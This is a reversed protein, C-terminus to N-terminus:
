QATARRRRRVGIAMALLGVALLAWTAPEPATSTTGVYYAWLGLDQDPASNGNAILGPDDVDANYNWSTEYNYAYAWDLTDGSGYVGWILQRTSGIGIAGGMTTADSMWNGGTLPLSNLLQSITTSDAVTFGAAEATAIMQNPTYTSSGTAQDFFNDLDLWVYGTNTDTFTSLGDVSGSTVVSAQALPVALTAAALLLLCVRVKM